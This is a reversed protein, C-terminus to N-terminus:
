WLVKVLPVEKNRLRHIQHDLIEVPVEEYSLSNKINKDELPVVINSDNMFKKLLYVRFVLHVSSLDAPLELEYAVKGIRSLIYFPVVYCPSLKGKKGSRKVGKM